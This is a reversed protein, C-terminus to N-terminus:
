GARPEAGRYRPHRPDGPPVMARKGKGDVLAWGLRTKKDHCHDCHRELWRLLTVKTMAWDHRHDTELRLARNCGETTCTPSSWELATDHYVTPKRGLHFVNAVDVGRTVVGALFADGSAVMARVVSVPVPGVGTIECVEGEIPWGRILADWDVRVVVKTPTAKRVRGRRRGGDDDAADGPVTADAAAAAPVPGGSAAAGAVRCAALLGDALYAEGPERRGELRARDFEQNAYGRIVALVEAVEDMTSRYRLEGAGDACRLSRVSRSRHIAQHRAEADVAAAAKIRECEERLEGVSARKAKAVLREEATPDIGAADAIPATQSPSLEGRRAAADLAPLTALREATELAERARVVTTGTKRALDHAASPAGDRRWGGGDAARRAAVAKITAAINEIAAAERVVREADAPSILSPDFSSAFGAVETRIEALVLTAMRRTFWPPTVVIREGLNATPGGSFPPPRGVNTPSWASLRLLGGHGVSDLHRQADVVKFHGGGLEDLSHELHVDTRRPRRRAPVASRGVHSAMAAAGPPDAVRGTAPRRHQHPVLAPPRAPVAPAGAPFAVVGDVPGARDGAAEAALEEVLRAPAREALDGGVVSHAGIPHDFGEVREGPHRDVRAPRPHQRHVLAGEPPAEHELGHQEVRDGAPGEGDGVAAVLVGGFHQEEAQGGLDSGTDLREHDVAVDREEFRSELREGVGADHDVLEM